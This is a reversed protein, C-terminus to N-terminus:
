GATGPGESFIFSKDRRIAHGQATRLNCTVGKSMRGSQTKDLNAKQIFTSEPVVGDQSIDLMTAVYRGLM